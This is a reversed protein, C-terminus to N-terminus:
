GGRAAESSHVVADGASSTGTVGPQSSRRRPRGIRVLKLGEPLRAIGIQETSFKTRTDSFLQECAEIAEWREELPTLNWRECRRCVAWLRGTAADFALRRGTPFIEVVENSGLDSLCFLCTSYM